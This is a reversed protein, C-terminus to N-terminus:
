NNSLITPCAAYYNVLNVGCASHACSKFRTGYIPDGGDIYTPDGNANLPPCDVLACNYPRWDTTCHGWLICAGFIEIVCTCTGPVDYLCGCPAGQVMCSTGCCLGYGCNEIVHIETGCAEVRCEKYSKISNWLTCDGRHENTYFKTKVCTGKSGDTGTVSSDATACTHGECASSVGTPPGASCTDTCISAGWVSFQTNECLLCETRGVGTAYKGPPCEDCTTAGTIDNAKGEECNNCVATGTQDAYKGKACAVCAINVDYLSPRVYVKGAPCEICEYKGAEPQYKGSGCGECLIAGGAAFKGAVCTKCETKGIEDQHEGWGCPKCTTEGTQLRYKGVECDKCDEKGADNQYKGIACHECHDQGTEDQYKGAACDTCESQIEDGTYRGIACDKCEREGFENQYKGVICDFCKESGTENNWKGKGCDECTVGGEVTIKGRDCYKCEIQGTNDQYKGNVCAICEIEGRNPQYKGISCPTASDFIKSDKKGNPVYHGENAITVMGGTVYHGQPPGCYVLTDNVLVAETL